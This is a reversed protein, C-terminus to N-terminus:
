KKEPPSMMMISTRGAESSQKEQSGEIPRTPDTIVIRIEGFQIEDGFRLRLPSTIRVGNVFTGNKSAMDHLECSFSSHVLIACHRRSICPDNVVIDNDPLRGITNYGVKLEQRRTRNIVIAPPQKAAVRSGSLGGGTFLQEQLKNRNEQVSGGELQITNLGRAHLLNERAKRFEERRPCELHVSNL